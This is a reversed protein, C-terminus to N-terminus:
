EEKPLKKILELINIAWGKRCLLISGDGRNELTFVGSSVHHNNDKKWKPLERQAHTRGAAYGDLFSDDRVPTEPLPIDKALKLLSEAYSKAYEDYNDDKVETNTHRAFDSLAKEFESMEGEEGDTFFLDYGSEYCADYRGNKDFYMIDERNGYDVLGVVCRDDDASKRDTCLIKVNARGSTVVKREPNALYKEVSFREM